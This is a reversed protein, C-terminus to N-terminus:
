VQRRVFGAIEDGVFEMMEVTNGPYVGVWFSRELTVDSNSLSGAVRHPVDRYAPHRVLNGAMVLRTHIKRSELHAILEARTFPASPRVTIPYGFWSPESHPTARPRLFFEDLPRLKADLVNFNCKRAEVFDTIKKLQSVGVAAQVDTMKLNYGIHAFMFKHDYSFGDGLSRAFRDGCANDEGPECWCDRGWDRFSDAIQRLEAHGTVVAGGEGTTMHHGAYFSLTAIHGFTGALRGRYTAGLADCCDEIVWLDRRKAIDMISALDCPNGLTHALMIARTRPGVASELLSPDLNYTDPQIDVYVPVLGNQIIPNVTTSFGCAATIVEDGQRLAKDGLRPSTLASVAILNASSGSNCLSAFQLGFYKALDREFKAAFRGATLWFDLAADVAASVDGADFVQGGVRVPTQGPVFQQPPFSEAYHSGVMALM